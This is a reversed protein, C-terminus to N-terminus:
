INVKNMPYVDYCVQCEHNLFRQCQEFHASGKVAEICDRTEINEKDKYMIILRCVTEARVHTSFFGECQLAIIKRQFYFFIAYFSRQHLPLTLTSSHKLNCAQDRREDYKSAINYYSM